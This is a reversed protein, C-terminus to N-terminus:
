YYCYYHCCIFCCSDDFPLLPSSIRTIFFITTNTLLFSEVTKTQQHLSFPSPLLLFFVSSTIFVISFVLSSVLPSSLLRSSVIASVFISLTLLIGHIDVTTPLLLLLSPTTAFSDYRLLLLSPPKAVPLPPLLAVFHYSTSLVLCFACPLAAAAYVFALSFPLLSVVSRQLLCLALALAVSCRQLAVVCGCLWVVVCFFCPQMLSVGCAVVFLCGRARDTNRQTEGHKQGDRTETEGQQEEAQEACGRHFKESRNGNEIGSSMESATEDPVVAGLCATGSCNGLVDGCARSEAPVCPGCPGHMETNETNEALKRAQMAPTGTQRNKEPVRLTSRSALPGARNRLLGDARQPGRRDPSIRPRFQCHSFPVGTKEPVLLLLSLRFFFRSRRAYRGRCHDPHSYCHLPLRTQFRQWCGNYIQM